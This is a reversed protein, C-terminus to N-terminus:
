LVFWKAVTDGRLKPAVSSMGLTMVEKPKFLKFILTALIYLIIIIIIWRIARNIKKGGFAEIFNVNPNKSYAYAGATADIYPSSQPMGEGEEMRTTLKKYCNDYPGCAKNM